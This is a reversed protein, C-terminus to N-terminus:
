ELVYKNEHYKPNTKVPFPLVCLSWFSRWSVLDECFELISACCTIHPGGRPVGPNTLLCLSLPCWPHSLAQVTIEAPLCLGTGGWDELVQGQLSQSLPIIAQTSCLLGLSSTAPPTPGSHSLKCQFPVSWPSSHIEVNALGPFPMGELGALVWIDFCWIYFIFSTALVTM